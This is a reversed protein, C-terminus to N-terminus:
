IALPNKEVSGGPFDKEKAHPQGIKGVGSMSFAKKGLTYEQGGQCLRVSWRHTLNTKLRRSQEM